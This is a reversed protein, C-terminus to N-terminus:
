GKVTLRFRKAFAVAHRKTPACTKCIHFKQNNEVTIIEWGIERSFEYRCGLCLCWKSLPHIQKLVGHKKTPARRM